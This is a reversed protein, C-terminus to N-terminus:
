DTMASDLVMSLKPYFESVVIANIDLTKDQSTKIAVFGGYNQGILTSQKLNNDKIYNSIATIYKETYPQEIAPMTDFGAFDFLYCSNTESYHEAIEKWMDSSCGIHPLFLMPTGSDSIKSVKIAPNQAFSIQATFLVVLTQIITKM